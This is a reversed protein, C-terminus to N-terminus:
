LTREIERLLALNEKVEDESIVQIAYGVHVLVYDGAKVKKDILYLAIERRVGGFDAIATEGRVEVVRAPVALCM